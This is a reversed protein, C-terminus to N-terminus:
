HSSSSKIVALIMSLIKLYASGIEHYVLFILPFLNNVENNDYDNENDYEGNAMMVNGKILKKCYNADDANPNKKDKM